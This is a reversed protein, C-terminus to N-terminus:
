GLYDSRTRYSEFFCFVTKLWRLYAVVAYLELHFHSFNATTTWTGYVACFKTMKRRQKASYPLSIHLFNYRVHVAITRSMLGKTQHRERQRRRRTQKLERFFLPPSRKRVVVVVVVVVHKNRESQRTLYM